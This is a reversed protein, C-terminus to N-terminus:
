RQGVATLLVDTRYHGRASGPLASLLLLAVSTVNPLPSFYVAAHCYIRLIQVIEYFRKDM